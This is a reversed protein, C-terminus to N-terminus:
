VLIIKVNCLLIMTTETKEEISIVFKWAMFVIDDEETPVHAMEPPESVTSWARGLKGTGRSIM